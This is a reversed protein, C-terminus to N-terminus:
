KAGTAVPSTLRKALERARGLVSIMQDISSGFACLQTVVYKKARDFNKEINPLANMVESLQIFSNKGKEAQEVTTESAGIFRVLSNKADDQVPISGGFIYEINSEINRLQQRFSDNSGEILKGYTLQQAALLQVAKRKEAISLPSSASIRTSTSSVQEGIQKTGENINAIIRSLESM